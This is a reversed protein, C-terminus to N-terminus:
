LKLKFKGFMRGHKVFIPDVLEFGATELESKFEEQSWEFYHYKDQLEGSPHKEPTTIYLISDSHMMRKINRLALEYNELHEIVDGLFITEACPFLEPYYINGFLMEVKRYRANYVAEYNNDIGWSGEGFLSTILGDGAGIDFVPREKVWELVENVYKHYTTEPNAYQDWHYAGLEKYKNFEM